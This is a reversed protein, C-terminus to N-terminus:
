PATALRVVTPKHLLSNREGIIFWGPFGGGHSVVASLGGGGAPVSFIRITEYSEGPRILDTLPRGLGPESEHYKNGASDILYLEADRARQVRRRARSSVSVTVACRSAKIESMVIALCIDDFCQDEGLGVGREPTALAVVVVILLYVAALVGTGAATRGARRYNRRFLFFLSTAIAGLTTSFTAIFLLDFITV